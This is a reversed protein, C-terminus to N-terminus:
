LDAKQDRGRIKIPEHSHFPRCTACQRDFACFLECVARENRGFDQDEVTSCRCSGKAPGAM